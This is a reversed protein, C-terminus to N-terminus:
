ILYPKFFVCNRSENMDCYQCKAHSYSNYRAGPGIYTCLFTQNQDHLHPYSIWGTSWCLGMFGMMVLIEILSELFHRPVRVCTIEIETHGDDLSAEAISYCQPEWMTQNRVISLVTERCGTLTISKLAWDCEIKCKRECNALDAHNFLPNVHRVPTPTNEEESDSTLNIVSSLDTPSVQRRQRRSMFELFNNRWQHDM